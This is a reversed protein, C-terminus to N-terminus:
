LIEPLDEHNIGEEAIGEEIILPMLFDNLNASLGFLM